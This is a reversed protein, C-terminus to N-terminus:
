EAHCTECVTLYEEDGIHIHGEAPPMALLKSHTAYENDCLQCVGTLYALVFRGDFRRQSEDFLIRYTEFKKGRFDRDLTAVVVLVYRAVHLIAQHMEQNTFQAEDFFVIEPNHMEILDLFEAGNNIAYAPASTGTRSKLGETRNDCTPKVCLIRSGNKKFIEIMMMLLASKGARMPGAVLIMGRNNRGHYWTLFSTIKELEKGIKKMMIGEISFGEKKVSVSVTNM